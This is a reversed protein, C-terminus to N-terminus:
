ILERGAAPSDLWEREEKTRRARPKCEALLQDLSYRRKQPSAILKGADVTIDVADGSRVGLIELLAPPVAMM